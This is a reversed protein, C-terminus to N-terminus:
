HQLCELFIMEEKEDKTYLAGVGAGEELSEEEEVVVSGEVLGTVPGVCFKAISVPLSLLTIPMATPTDTPTITNAVKTIHMM